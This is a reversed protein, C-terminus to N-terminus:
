FRQMAKKALCVGTADNPPLSMPVSVSKCRGCKHESGPHHFPGPKWTGRSPKQTAFLAILIERYTGAGEAFSGLAFM